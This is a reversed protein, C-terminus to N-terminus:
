MYYQFQEIYLCLDTKVYIGIFINNKTVIITSDPISNWLCHLNYISDIPETTKPTMVAPIAPMTYVKSEEDIGPLRIIERPISHLSHAFNNKDLLIADTDITNKTMETKGISISDKQVAQLEIDKNMHQTNGAPIKITSVSLSDSNQGEM